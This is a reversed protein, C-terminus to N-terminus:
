SGNLLAALERAGAFRHLAQQNSLRTVARRALEVEGIGRAMRLAAAAGPSRAIAITSVPEDGTAFRDKYSDGGRLLRYRGIGDEAASRMTHALLVLGVSSRDWSPDRGAQYYWEEDAYRFGYWAAVVGDGEVEALWLRLWGRELALRGFDRHFGGRRGAFAGSGATAWRAEHLRFLTEIDAEFSDADALRFALGNERKLKREKRGLQSRFNSSRSALYREWGDSLDVIPSPERRLLAFGGLGAPDVPLREALFLGRGPPGAALARLAPGVQDPPCVPGLADAPGYGAFRMVKATLIRGCAMPALAVVQGDPDRCALLLPEAGKGFHAWWTDVWEPTSFVNRSAEALERWRSRLQSSDEVPTVQLAMREAESAPTGGEGGAM